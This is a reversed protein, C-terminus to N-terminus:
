PKENELSELRRNVEKIQEHLVPINENFLKAYGNHETVKADLNEMKTNLVAIQIDMAHSIKDRTDRASFVVAVVTGAFGILAIIISVTADTM